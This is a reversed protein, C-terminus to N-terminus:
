ISWASMSLNVAGLIDLEPSPHDISGAKRGPLTNRNLQLYEQVPNRHHRHNIKTIRIDIDINPLM